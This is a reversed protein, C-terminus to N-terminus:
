IHILSLEQHGDLRWGGAVESFVEETYGCVAQSGWRGHFMIKWLEWGCRALTKAGSRRASHGGVVEKNGVSPGALTQWCKVVAEKSPTGGLANPFLPVDRMGEPDGALGLRAEVREVQARVTCAPCM